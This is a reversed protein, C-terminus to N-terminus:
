LTFRDMRKRSWWMPFYIYRTNLNDNKKIVIPENNYTAQIVLGIECISMQDDCNIM